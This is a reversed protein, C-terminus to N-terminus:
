LPTLNYFIVILLICIRNKINNIKYGPGAYGRSRNNQIAIEYVICISRFINLYFILNNFYYFVIYMCIRSFHITAFHM